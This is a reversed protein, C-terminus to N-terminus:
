RESVAIPYTGLKDRMIVEEAGIEYIEQEGVTDGKKCIFSKGEQNEIIALPNEKALIGKLQLPIRQYSPKVIRKRRSPPRYGAIKFPSSLSKPLNFQKNLELEVLANKITPDQLGPLEKSLSSQTNVEMIAAVNMGISVLSYAVLVVASTLCTWTIWNEKM